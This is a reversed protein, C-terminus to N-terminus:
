HRVPFPLNCCIVEYQRVLAQILSPSRWRETSPNSNMGSWFRTTTVVILNQKFESQQVFMLLLNLLILSSFSSFTCQENLSLKLSSTFSFSSSFPDENCQYLWTKVIFLIVTIWERPHRQQSKNVKTSKNKVYIVYKLMSTSLM